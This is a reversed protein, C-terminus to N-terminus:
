MELLDDLSNFGEKYSTYNSTPNDEFYKDLDQKTLQITKEISAHKVETNDGLITVIRHYNVGKDTVMGELFDSLKRAVEEGIEQTIVLLNSKSYLYEDLEDNTEVRIVKYNGLGNIHEEIDERTLSFGTPTKTGVGSNKAIDRMNGVVYVFLEEEEEEKHFDEAEQKNSREKEEEQYVEGSDYESYDEEIGEEEEEETQSFDRHGEFNDIDEYEKSEFMSDFSPSDEEEEKGINGIGLDFNLVNDKKPLTPTPKNVPEQNVSVQKPKNKSKEMNLRIQKLKDKKEQEEREKRLRTLEKEKAIDEEKQRQREEELRRRNEEDLKRQEERRVEEEQSSVYAMYNSYDNDNIYNLYIIDEIDIGEQEAREIIAYADTVGKFTDAIREEEEQSMYASARDYLSKDMTVDEIEDKSRSLFSAFLGTKKEPKTDTYTTKQENTSKSLKKGKGRKTEVVENEQDQQEGLRVESQELIGTDETPENRVRGASNNTITKPVAVNDSVSQSMVDLFRSKKSLKKAM